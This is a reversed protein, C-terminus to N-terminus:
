LPRGLTQELGHIMGAIATGLDIGLHSLVLTAGLVLLIGILWGQLHM